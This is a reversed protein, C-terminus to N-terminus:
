KTITISAGGKSSETIQTVGNLNYSELKNYFDGGVPFCGNCQKKNIIFNSLQYKSQNSILKIEFDNVLGDMDSYVGVTNYNEAYAYFSDISSTLNTGKTFRSILLTDIEEKTFNQFNIQHIINQDECHKKTCCAAITTAIMMM